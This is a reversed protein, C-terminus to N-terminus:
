VLVEPNDPIIIVTHKTVAHYTSHIIEFKITGIDTQILLKYKITRM